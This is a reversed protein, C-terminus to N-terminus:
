TSQQSNNPKSLFLLLRLRIHRKAVFGGWFFPTSFSPLLSIFHVSPRRRFHLITATAEQTMRFTAEILIWGNHPLPFPPSGGGRGRALAFGLPLPLSSCPPLKPLLQREQSEESGGPGRGVDSPTAACRSGTQGEAAPSHSRPLKVMLKPGTARQNKKEKRGKRRVALTLQVTLRLSQDIASAARQEVEAQHSWFMQRPM